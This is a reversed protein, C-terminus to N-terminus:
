RKTTKTAQSNSLLVQFELTARKHELDLQQLLHEVEKVKLKKMMKKKVASRLTMKSGRGEGQNEDDNEEMNKLGINANVEVNKGKGWVGASLEYVELDHATSFKKDVGNRGKMLNTEYKKKLRRIKEFMQSITVEVDLSDKIYNHFGNKDASVPHIGKEEAYEVLGKLLTCIDSESWLRQFLPKKLASEGNKTILEKKKKKERKSDEVHPSDVPRKLPSNSSSAKSPSKQPIGESHSDTDSPSVVVVPNVSLLQGEEVEQEKKKDRKKKSSAGFRFKKKDRKKKSSAGSRFKKKTRYFKMMKLSFKSVGKSGKSQSVSALQKPPPPTAEVGESEMDSSGEQREKEADAQAVSRNRRPTM